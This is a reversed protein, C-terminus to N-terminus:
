NIIRPSRIPKWLIYSSVTHTLNAEKILKELLFSSEYVHTLETKTLNPIAKTQTWTWWARTKAQIGQFIFIVHKFFSRQYCTVFPLNESHFINNRISLGQGKLELGLYTRTKNISSSSIQGKMQSGILQPKGIYCPPIKKKKKM